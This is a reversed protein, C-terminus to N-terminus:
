GRNLHCDLNLNLDHSRALLLQKVLVIVYSFRGLRWEYLPNFLGCPVYITAKCILKSSGWGAETKPLAVFIGILVIFDRVQKM